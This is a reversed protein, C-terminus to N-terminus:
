PPESTARGVAGASTPSISWPRPRAASRTCAPDATLPRRLMTPTDVTMPYYHFAYFFWYQLARLRSTDQGAYRCGAGADFFYIQASWQLFASLHRPWADILPEPVGVGRLFAR